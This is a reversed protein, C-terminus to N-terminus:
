KKDKMDRILSEIINKYDNKAGLWSLASALTTFIEITIPLDSSLKYITFAMVQNPTSTIFASKREGVIQLKKVSAIYKEIFIDIDGSYGVDSTERMDVIFNYNLDYQNDTAERQKLGIYDDLFINGSLVEVILKAEPLIAYEAIKNM